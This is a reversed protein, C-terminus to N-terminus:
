PAAPRFTRALIEFIHWDQGWQSDPTSWYLAYAHHVNALINRNLVHTLTGMGGNGLASILHYRGAV